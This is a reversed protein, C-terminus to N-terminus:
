RKSLLADATYNNSPNWLMFGDIGLKAATDIQARVRSKDYKVITNGSQSRVYEEPKNKDRCGYINMISFDQIWPRTIVSMGAHKLIELGSALTKEYVLAPHLNPDMVGFEGCKYHSPYAMPAIVDFYKAVAVLDQGVGPEKGFLYVYGYIDISLKAKIGRMSMYRGLEMRLREFFEEMVAYKTRKGDWRPYVLNSQHPFRIYDFNVEDVGADLVRKAVAINWDQSEKAAPDVWYRHWKPNGDVFLNGGPNKVAIDKNQLALRSDQFTVIRGIVYIGRDKFLRHVALHYPELLVASDKVDIVIANLETNEILRLLELIKPRNALQSSSLYVARINDGSAQQAAKKHPALSVGVLGALFQRRTIQM